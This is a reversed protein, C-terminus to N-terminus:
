VGNTRRDEVYRIEGIHMVEADAMLCYQTLYLENLVLAVEKWDLELSDM